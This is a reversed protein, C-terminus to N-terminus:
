ARARLRRLAAKIRQWLPRVADADDKSLPQSSYRAQVFADTLGTLDPELDPFNDDLSAQYEYPTQGARRPQGARAARQATSLYFYRVLNRPSLRRLSLFRPLSAARSRTEKREARRQALGAQVEQQWALWRRWLSRLWALFRGWLTGDSEENGPGILRLRERLFRYLAYGVITLILIWFLASLLVDFWPPPSSTIGSEPALGPQMQLPPPVPQEVQPFLLSLLLAIVYTVLIMFFWMGQLVIGILGLIALLPGLAYDTPLLLAIAAVGLLFLVAWLLWRRGIEAQIPIGQARWGAHAVGFRAQSLLAVGLAFYLLIPTALTAVTPVLFHVLASALLLGTGGWIFLEGLQDLAEQYFRARPPRTLWLYYETSTKDEPPPAKAETVDLEAALRSVFVAGVWLILFVGGTMLDITSVFSYPDSPWARAEAILQDLGLPIYNLLKLLLLLILVEAGRSVVYGWGTIGRKQLVRESLIGELGAFFCFILFYAGDWSPMIWGLIQIIPAALCAMMGAILVPRLLNEVWWLGATQDKMAM